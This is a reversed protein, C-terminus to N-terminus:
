KRKRECKFCYSGCIDCILYSECKQGCITFCKDCPHYFKDPGIYEWYEPWKITGDYALTMRAFHGDNYASSDIIKTITVQKQEIKAFWIDGINPKNPQKIM